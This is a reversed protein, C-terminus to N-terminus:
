GMGSCGSIAGGFAPRKKDSALLSNRRRAPWKLCRAAGVDVERDCTQRGARGADLENLACARQYIPEAAAYRGNAQSLQSLLKSGM